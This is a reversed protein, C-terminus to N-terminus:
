AGGFNWSATQMFSEAEDCGAHHTTAHFWMCYAVLLWLHLNVVVRDVIVRQM